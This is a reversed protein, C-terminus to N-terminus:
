PPWNHAIENSCPWRSWYVTTNDRQISLTLGTPVLYPQFFVDQFWWGTILSPCPIKDLRRAAWMPKHDHPLIKGVPVIMDYGPPGRTIYQNRFWELLNINVM